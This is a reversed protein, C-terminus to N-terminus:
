KPLQAISYGSFSAEKYSGIGITGFPTENSDPRLKFTHRVTTEKDLEFYKIDNPGNFLIIIGKANKVTVTYTKNAELKNKNYVPTYNINLRGGSFFCDNPSVTTLNYSALNTDNANFTYDEKFTKTMSEVTSIKLLGLLFVFSLVTVLIGIKKMVEIEKRIGIKHSLM